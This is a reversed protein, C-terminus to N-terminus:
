NRRCYLDVDFWEVPKEPNTRDTFLLIYSEDKGDTKKIIEELSPRPSGMQELLEQITM